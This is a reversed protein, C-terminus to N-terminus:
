INTYYLSQASQPARTNEVRGRHIETVRAGAGGVRVVDDLDVSRLGHVLAAAAYRDFRSGLM